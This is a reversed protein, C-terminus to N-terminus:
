KLGNMRRMREIEKHSKETVSGSSLDKLYVFRDTILIVEYTSDRNELYGIGLITVVQGHKLGLRSFSLDGYHKSSKRGFAKFDKHFLVPKGDQTELTVADVRDDNVKLKTFEKNTTNFRDSFLPVVQSTIAGYRRNRKVIPNIVNSLKM